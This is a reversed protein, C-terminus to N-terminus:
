VQLVNNKSNLHRAMLFELSGLYLSAINKYNIIATNKTKNVSM